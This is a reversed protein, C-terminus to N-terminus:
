QTCCASPDYHVHEHEGKEDLAELQQTTHEHGHHSHGHSHGHGHACEEPTTGSAHVHRHKHYLCTWLLYVVAGLTVFFSSGAVLVEFQEPRTYVMGASYMIVTAGSCLANDIAGIANRHLKDALEQEENMVGLEFAYLGPRGLCVTAMFLLMAYLHTSGSVQSSYHFAAFSIIMMGALWCVCVGDTVRQGFYKGLIPRATPGMVGLLAGCGRLLSLGWSPVGDMMLFATVLAGHPSLVTLYLLAYSGSLFQLGSPHRLWTSWAGSPPVPGSRAKLEAASKPQLYVAHTKYISLLLSLQPWYSLANLFGVAIFGSDIPEIFGPLFSVTGGLSIFVGAIFPGVVETILDIQSMRTNVLRRTDDDRFLQPTWERRVSVDSLQTGLKEVVGFTTFAIVGFVDIKQEERQQASTYILVVTSGLVAICQTVVGITVVLKRNSRDAWSGLPPGLFMTMLMTVMGWCAPGVLVGPTFKLMVLPAIFLWGQTGLRTVAHSLLLKKRVGADDLLPQALLSEDM